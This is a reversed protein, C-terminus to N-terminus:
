LHCKRVKSWRTSCETGITGPRSPSISSLSYYDASATLDTSDYRVKPVTARFMVAVASSGFAYSNFATFSPYRWLAACPMMTHRSDGTKLGYSKAALVRM